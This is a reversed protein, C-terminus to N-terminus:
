TDRGQRGRQIESGRDGEGSEARRRVEREPEGARSRMDRDMQRDRVWETRISM